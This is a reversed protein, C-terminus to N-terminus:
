DKKDEGFSRELARAFAEEPDFDGYRPTQKKSRPLRPPRKEEAQSEEMTRQVHEKEVLRRCDEVTKCGEEHWHTLLKDMYPLSLKSTNVTSISYAESIIASSYGLEGFWRRVYEQEKRSLSRNYLGVIRKFEWEDGSENEKASIYSELAETTSIGLKALRQAESGLKVATLRGGSGVYAALTLIYEDSLALQTYLASIIKIEETSLAAKGMMSACESILEALGDDRIEKAVETSTRETIEGLRVREEFEETISPADSAASEKKVVIAAEQWYVLAAAARIRSTRAESALAEIGSIRGGLSSLALLVRLEEASAETFAESERLATLKVVYETM